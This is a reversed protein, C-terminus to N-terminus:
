IEEQEAPAEAPANDRKNGFFKLENVYLKTNEGEKEVLLGELALNTGKTLKATLGAGYRNLTADLWVTETSKTDKNYKETAVSFSLFKSEQGDKTTSREVADRGLRGVVGAMTKGEDGEFQEFMAGGISLADVMVTDYDKGEHTRVGSLGVIAVEAGKALRAILGAAYRNMTVDYFKTEPQKTDRNYGNVAVGFALFKKDEKGNREVAQRTVNGVIMIKKSM